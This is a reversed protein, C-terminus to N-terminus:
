EDDDIVIITRERQAEVTMAVLADATEEVKVALEADELEQQSLGGYPSTPSYNPSTPSYAPSTPSYAPSNPAYSPSTPSYAPSTPSYAPSTPSYSPSTPAYYPPPSGPVPVVVRARGGKARKKLKHITRRHKELSKLALALSAETAELRVLASQFQKNLQKLNLTAM